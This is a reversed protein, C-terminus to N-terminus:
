EELHRLGPVVYDLICGTLGSFIHITSYVKCSLSQAHRTDKELRVHWVFCVHEKILKTYLGISPGQFVASGASIDVVARRQNCQARFMFTNEEGRERTVLLRPQLVITVYTSLPRCVKNYDTSASM